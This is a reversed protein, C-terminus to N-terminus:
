YHACWLGQLPWVGTLSVFSVGYRTRVPQRKHTRGHFSVAVYWTHVTYLRSTKGGFCGMPSSKNHINELLLSKWLLHGDWQLSQPCIGFKILICKNIDERFNIRDCLFKACELVPCSDQFPCFIKTIPDTKEISSLNLQVRFEVSNDKTPHAGPSLLEVLM